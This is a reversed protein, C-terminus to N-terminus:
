KVAKRKISARMSIDLAIKGCRKQLDADTGVGARVRYNSSGMEDLQNSIAKRSYEEIGALEGRTLGFYKKLDDLVVVIEKAIKTMKQEYMDPDPNEEHENSYYFIVYEETCSKLAFEKILKQRNQGSTLRTWEDNEDNKIKDLMATIEPSQRQQALDYLNDGYGNKMKYSPKWQLLYTVTDITGTAIAATFANDGQKDFIAPDAGKEALYQVIKMSDPHNRSAAIVIAPREISNKANPNSGKELLIKVDEASGFATRYVLQTDLDSAIDAANASYSFSLFIALILIIIKHM